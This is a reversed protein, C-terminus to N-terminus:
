VISHHCNLLVEKITTQKKNKSETQQHQQQNPQQPQQKNTDSKKEEESTRKLEKTSRFPMVSAISLRWQCVGSCRWVFLSLTCFSAALANSFVDLERNTAGDHEDDELAEVLLAPKDIAPAVCLRLGVGEELVSYDVNM